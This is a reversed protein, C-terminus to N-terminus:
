KMLILGIWFCGDVIVFGVMPDFCAEYFGFLLLVLFYVVVADIVISNILLETCEIALELAGDLVIVKRIIVLELAGDTAIM